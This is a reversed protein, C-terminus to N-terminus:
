IPPRVKQELRQNEQLMESGVANNKALTAPKVKHRWMERLYLLGFRSAQRCEM